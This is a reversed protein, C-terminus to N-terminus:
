QERYNPSGKCLYETWHIYPGNTGKEFKILVSDGEKPEIGNVTGCFVKKIHRYHDSPQKYDFNELEDAKNNDSITKYLLIYADTRCLDNKRLHDELWFEIKNEYKKYKKEKNKVNSGKSEKEIYIHCSDFGIGGFSKFLEVDSKWEYLHINFRFFFKTGDRFSCFYYRKSLLRSRVPAFETQFELPIGEGNAKCKFAINDIENPYIRILREELLDIEPRFIKKEKSSSACASFFLIM